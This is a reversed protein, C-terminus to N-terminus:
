QVILQKMQTDADTAVKVIYAGAALGSVNIEHNNSGASMVAQAVTRGSMDLILISGADVDKTAITVVDNAPNPFIAFEGAKLDEIGVSPQIVKTAIDVGCGNNIELSVSYSAPNSPSSWPYVVTEMVNTSTAPSAGAGFNWNVTSTSTLYPSSSADFVYIFGSYTPNTIVAEPAELVVVEFSDVSSCGYSDTASVTYAGADNFTNVANTPAAGGSWAYTTGNAITADLTLPLDDSCVETGIIEVAESQTVATTASSVCGMVDKTVTYTGPEDIVITQTMAGTSWTYSGSSLGGPDLTANEDACIHLMSDLNANPVLTILANDSASGCYETQISVLVNYTTAETGGTLTLTPATSSNGNVSWTVSQAPGAEITVEDACYTSDGGLTFSAPSVWEVAGIDPTNMSRMNSDIDYMAVGSNTGANDMTDNCTVCALTDVWAPDTSIGDADFGTGNQYDELNSYASSGHYVLTGGNSYFNNNESESVTFGDAYRAYGNNYDALSNNKMSVLGGANFQSTYYGNNGGRRTVSNNHFNYLGSYYSYVGYYGYSTSGEVGVNICNNAVMSRPNNSGICQYLYLGYAYGGYSGNTVDSGIYNGSINFNDVYYCYVARPGYPYLNSDNDVVNNNFELGDIYYLYNAFYYADHLQNNEVTVNEVRATNSGGYVYLGYGGKEILNNTLTLNHNQGYAYVATLLNGTYGYEGARIHCGDFTVNEAGNVIRVATAYYFTGNNRITVDNFNVYDSGDLLVVQNDSSGLTTYNIIVDAANGTTSTWTLTGDPGSGVFEGLSIQETYTGPSINMVVDGCVGKAMVDAAAATLTAYDNPISYTGELGAYLMVSATDNTANSDQVGNPMSSWVKVEDGDVFSTTSVLTLTTDGGVPISGSFAMTTVVSGNLAYTITCSTLPVLGTNALTAIVTTDDSCLPADPKVLDSIGANNTPVVFEDAGPDPTSSRAEGDFDDNVNTNVGMNDIVLASQSPNIHFDGSGVFPVETIIGNSEGGGVASSLASLSTVQGSSYTYVYMEGGHFDYVNGDLTDFFTTNVNYAYYYANYGYGQGDNPNHLINNMVTNGGYSYSYNYMMLNYGGYGSGESSITNHKIDLNGSYYTYMGYDYYLNNGASRIFNNEIRTPNGTTGYHYYVMLGYNYGYGNGEIDNGLISHGSGYYIYFGYGYYSTSGDGASIHNGEWRTDNCNYLYVGYYYTDHIDNNTFVLDDSYGIYVQGNTIENGDFVVNNSNTFYAYISAYYNSTSTTGYAIIKNNEFLINTNTSALYITRNYAGTAEFTLGSFTVNTTGDIRLTHSFFTNSALKAEGTNSPNAQFTVTNTTSSGPIADLQVNENFTDDSVNMTVAGNVGSTELATVAANWTTFNTPGSGNPDITYTGSLQAFGSLSAVGVMLSLLVKKM